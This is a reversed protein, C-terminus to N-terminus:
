FVATSLRWFAAGDRLYVARAAVAVAVLLAFSLVTGPAGERFLLAQDNLALGVGVFLPILALNVGILAAPLVLPRRSAAVAHADLRELLGPHGAGPFSDEAAGAEIAKPAIGIRRLATLLQAM